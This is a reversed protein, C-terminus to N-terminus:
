NSAPTLLFWRHSRLMKERERKLDNKRIKIIKQWRLEERILNELLSLLYLTSLGLYETHRKIPIAAKSEGPPIEPCRSAQGPLPIPSWFRMTLM